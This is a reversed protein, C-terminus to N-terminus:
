KTAVFTGVILNREMNLLYSSDIYLVVSFSALLSPKTTWLLLAVLLTEIGLSPLCKM